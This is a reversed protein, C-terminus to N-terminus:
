LLIAARMGEFTTAEYSKRAEERDKILGAITRGGVRMTLSDVTANEPLPFVYIGELWQDTPNAFTQRITGRAVIGGVEFSVETAVLPTLRLYDADAVRFLLGGGRVNDPKEIANLNSLSAQRVHSFGESRASAGSYQVFLLVSWILVAAGVLDIIGESLAEKTDPKM